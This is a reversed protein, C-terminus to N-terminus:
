SAVGSQIANTAPPIARGRIHKGSGPIRVLAKSEHYSLSAVILRLLNILRGPIGSVSAAETEFSTQRGHGRLDIWTFYAVDALQNIAHGSWKSDRIAVNASDLLSSLEAATLQQIHGILKEKASWGFQRLIGHLNRIDDELPCYLHFLGGPVLIRHVEVLAEKPDPLHELIDLMVVADYTGPAIPLKHADGSGYAIDGGMERAVSLASKSLDLGHVKLDPRHRKIARTMAGGGCGIELIKGSVGELDDLCYKLKLGGLYKPSPEVEHAGWLKKEYDIEPVLRVPPAEGALSSPAYLHGSM